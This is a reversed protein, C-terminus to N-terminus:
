GIGIRTRISHAWNRGRRPRASKKTSGATDGRARNKELSEKILFTGDADRAGLGNKGELTPHVLVMGYNAGPTGDVVVFYGTEGIKIGAIKQKLVKMEQDFDIGVFLAGIIQKNDDLIPEYASMYNKGFLTVPGVYTEGRQLAGYAPNDRKLITGVARQNKDDTLSTSIRFFDDGSKM